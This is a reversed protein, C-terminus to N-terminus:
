NLGLSEAAFPAIDLLSGKKHSGPKIRLSKIMYFVTYDKMDLPYGHNAKEAKEGSGFCYGEKACFGFSAHAYGSEQMEIPELFRRFGESNKIKNKIIDTDDESLSGRHFFASGGCNEFYCNHEGPAYGNDNLLLHGAKELEMNPDVITHVNIQYHDSFLIIERDEGAAQLIKNLNEDLPKYAMELEPNKKGKIGTGHRHCFYDFATLHILALGPNYEKLIDVMCATAFNDLNPQKTGDLLKKHRMFMKLQLRKSGANLSHLIQSKGAPALVEPINYDITKSNATVPWLVAATKIGKEKAAQWLTKAKINKESSNWLPENSPFAQTNSILGHHEPRLGTVISTHVPYTNSVFVSPISRFVASKKSLERFAPYKQLTEFEIDGAADFSIIIM